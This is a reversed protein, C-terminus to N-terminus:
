AELRKLGRLIAERVFADQESELRRLISPLARDVRREALVHIVEARVAWSEHSVHPLLELLDESTGHAGICTVAAQVLEPESGGLLGLAIQAAGTGGVQSLAEVAAVSVAGNDSLVTRILALKKEVSLSIGHNRGITRITAARVRWDEDRVLREFDAAIDEQPSSALARAAAIRVQYSEDALALRLPEASKDPSLRSLASVAASRVEADSDKMLLTVLGSDVSRGIRGLIRAIALRTNREGNELRESVMQITKAVLSDNTKDPGTCLSVLADVIAICEEEAEIEDVAASAELREVLPSLARENRCEGLAAAASTRQQVDECNLVQLLRKVARPGGTSGLLRCADRRLPDSLDDWASDIADESVEGMQVLTAMAVESIAEDAGAELIAVVGEPTGVLGLFQVIVLRTSLDADPLRAIASEIPQSGSRAAERIQNALSDFEQGDRRSLMRLLSRMAAERAVRSGLSLGKLLCLAGEDDDLNGLLEYGASALMADQLIRSLDIVPIQADLNALARLASLRVLREETEQVACARLGAEAGDGGLAGLADAAAGRVNADPDDLLELMTSAVSKDGIGTMTDVLMKRVDVDETTLASVLKPVIASGIGILAAVASNRRGPNDGDSLAVILAESAAHPEGCAILREVGAKRVRWSSDGLSAILHPIAEAIPFTLVREVALRRLEDDASGLGDVISERERAAMEASM